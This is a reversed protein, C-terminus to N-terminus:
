RLSRARCALQLLLRQDPDEPDVGLREFIRKIRYAVANRHLHLAQATRTLSGQHDLYAELTRIAEEGRRPGLRELPELLGHVAERAADSAYWEILTRRLGVEDFRVAVNTRNGLRAAAVAASAEAAATRLGTPGAHVGGVGCRLVLEPVRSRLRRLVRDAVDATAAAGGPGPDDREMRVLRLTSGAGARHWSGGAARAAELASRAQRQALEFSALEDGGAIESANELEIQIVAHWGDVALGLSRARHLLAGTRHMEASLLEGLLEARPQAPVEEALRAAAIARGVAAATLHLVLETAHAGGSESAACVAGERRGDVLVPAFLEGERPERLEVGAGLAAAAATLLPDPDVCDQEAAVLAGLAAKARALGAEGGGAIESHLAVILDALDLEETARLVAVRGRDAIAVAAETLEIREGGTLVVGSLEHSAALRLAIDFRYSAAERSASATLVALRGSEVDQLRELSEAVRVGEVRREAGLGALPRLQRSLLPTALLESLTPM